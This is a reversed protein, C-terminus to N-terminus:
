ALRDSLLQRYLALLAGTLREEAFDRLARERASHGMRARLQADGALTRLRLALQQVDGAEFLLGTEDEVIADTIGYIRSGIAPLGAAAAELIVVGFGERYSPLCLVDSAAMYREPESSYGAVHLRTRCGACISEVEPLLRDEDPGIMLLRSSADERACFAFARALDLVGKDRKLRGLYLFLTASEAIGLEARLQARKAADPRFRSANVGSVSGLGLVSIKAPNVVGQAVLFDRQSFSDALVQTAAASILRDAAKLLARMPGRRNAWVQGTYIHLRAPVGALRAALMGLLGGKPTISQVLQYREARFHRWLWALARLDALPAIDRELRLSIIRCPLQAALEPADNNVILTVKFHRALTRIHELLFWRVVLTSTVVLAVRGPEIPDPQANQPSNSQM